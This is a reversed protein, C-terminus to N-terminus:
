PNEKFTLTLRKPVSKSGDKSSAWIQAKATFETKDLSVTNYYFFFYGTIKKALTDSIPIKFILTSDKNGIATSVIASFKTWDIFDKDDNTYFILRESMQYTRLRWDDINNHWDDLRVNEPKNIQYFVTDTATKEKGKQSHAISYEISFAGFYDRVSYNNKDMKITDITVIAPNTITTKKCKDCSVLVLTFMVAVFLYPLSIFNKNKKM